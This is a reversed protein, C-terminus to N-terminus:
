FISGSATRQNVDVANGAPDTVVRSVSTTSTSDSGVLVKVFDADLPLAGAPLSLVVVKPDNVSLAISYNGAESAANSTVTGGAPGGITRRVDEIPDGPTVDGASGDDDLTREDLVAQTAAATIVYNDLSLLQPSAIRPYAIMPESFTIEIRDSAEGADDVYNRRAVVSVLKPATRDLAVKFRTFTGHTESWRDRADDVRGPVLSMETNKIANYVIEGRVTRGFDGASNQGLPKSQADRIPEDDQQVLLFAYEGEDDNGTKVPAQLTFTATRGDAEWKFDSLVAGNLFGSNQRYRYASTTAPAPGARLGELESSTSLQEPALPVDPDEEVSTPAPLATNEALAEANNPLILLASSLRRQNTTDLPESMVLKLVMRDNPQTSSDDSPEVREIEPYDSIYYALGGPDANDIPGGFNFINRTDVNTSTTRRLVEVRSRSTWGTHTATIQLAVGLPAGNVVYSGARTEVTTEFPRATDLSRVTVAAGDPAQGLNEDYVKGRMTGTEGEPATTPAASATGPVASSAGPQPAAPAEQSPAGVPTPTTTPSTPPTGSCAAPLTAIAVALITLAPRFHHKGM